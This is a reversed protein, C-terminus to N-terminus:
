LPRPMRSLMRREHKREKATEHDLRTRGKESNQRIGEKEKKRTSGRPADHCSPPYAVRHCVAQLGSCMFQLALVGRSVQHAASGKEKEQQVRRHPLYGCLSRLCHMHGQQYDTAYSGGLFSFHRFHRFNFVV